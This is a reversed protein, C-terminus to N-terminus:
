LARGASWHVRCQCDTHYAGMWRAATGGEHTNIAIASADQGCAAHLVSLGILTQVAASVILCGTHRAATAAPAGGDDGQVPAVVVVRAGGAAREM